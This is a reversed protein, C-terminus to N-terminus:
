DALAEDILPLVQKYMELLIPEMSALDGYYVDVVRLFEESEYSPPNRFMADTFAGTLGDIQSQFTYIKSLVFALDADIYTLSETTVSLDWATREFVPPQINNFKLSPQLAKRGESDAKVYQRLVKQLPVHYAATLALRDRNTAIETRFRQLSAKADDRRRSDEYWQQGILGLFVSASILVMEAAMWLM